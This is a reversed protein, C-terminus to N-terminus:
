PVQVSSLLIDVHLIAFSNSMHPEYLDMYLIEVSCMLVSFVHPYASHPNQCVFPAPVLALKASSTLREM